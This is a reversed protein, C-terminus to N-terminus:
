WQDMNFLFKIQQELTLQEFWEEQSYYKGNLFWYKEGNSFIAAPGDDRHKKNNLYWYKDIYDYNCEINAPGNERHLEGNVLYRIEWGERYNLKVRGTFNEPVENFCSVYLCKIM